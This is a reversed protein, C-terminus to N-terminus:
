GILHALAEEYALGVLENLFLQPLKIEIGGSVTSTNQQVFGSLSLLASLKKLRIAKTRGWYERLTKEPDPRARLSARLAAIAYEEVDLRSLAGADCAGVARHTISILSSIEKLKPANNKCYNELMRSVDLHSHNNFLYDKATLLAQLCSDSIADTADDHVHRNRWSILLQVGAQYAPLVGTAYESLAEFRAKMSPRHRRGFHARQFAFILRECVTNNHANLKIEGALKFLDVSACPRAKSADIQFDGVLLSALNNDPIVSPLKALSSMYTDLADVVYVMIAETAYARALLAATPKDKPDWSVALDSPCSAVGAKVAELGVVITNLRFNAFGAKDRFRKAAPTRRISLLSIIVEDTARARIRVPM